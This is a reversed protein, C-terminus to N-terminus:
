RKMGKIRDIESSNYHSLGKGIEVEEWEDGIDLLRQREEDAALTQIEQVVKLEQGLSSNMTTAALRESIAKVAPSLPELSAVSSSMSAAPNIHPTNPQPHTEPSAIPSIASTINPPQLHKLAPSVLSSPGEATTSSQEDISTFSADTPTKQHKTDKRRRKVVLRVGQHSAFVGEVRIVGAPLLRGGSEKNTIARYAGEDVRRMLETGKQAATSECSLEPLICDM